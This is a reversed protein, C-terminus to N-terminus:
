TWCAHDTSCTSHWRKVETNKLNCKLVMRVCDQGRSNVPSKRRSTSAGTAQGNPRVVTKDGTLVKHQGHIFARQGLVQFFFVDSTGIHLRTAGEDSRNRVEGQTLKMINRPTPSDWPM